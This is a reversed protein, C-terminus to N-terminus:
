KNVRKGTDRAMGDLVVKKVVVKDEVKDAGVTKNADKAKTGKSAGNKVLDLVTVYGSRQITHTVKEILWNGAHTKAVGSMTIVKNPSTLPNGVVGLKAIVQRSGKKASNAVNSAEKKSTTADNVFGQPEKITTGIDKVMGNLQKTAVRKHSGLTGTAEESSADVVKTSHTGTFPDFSPVIAKNDKGKANSEKIAPEFYMVTGEGDGYTYSLMSEKSTGRAEYYLTNNRIYTITNGGDERQALYRLFEMDSKTGQPLSDWKTDGGEIEVELGYKSAVEEVIQKTTKGKWVTKEKVKKALNSLALCTIEMTVRDRYKHKIDTVKARHIPSIDGQLYGFQFTIVSNTSIRDDDVLSLAYDPKITIRLLSDEKSADEFVLSEVQETIDQSEDSNIYVKYFPAQAM